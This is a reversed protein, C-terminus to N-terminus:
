SWALMQHIARRARDAIPEEVHVQPARNRLCFLVKEVTTLKMNPCVAFPSVRHFIKEPNELRLRHLLGEETAVIFEMAPSEKAFRCMQGTSLIQDAVMRVPKPCEPHALAVADPHAAKLEQIDRPQIRAHTPCYGPWLILDRGLTEAIVTGLHQDPVFIVDQGEYHRLINVANGSTCCCDSEAKVEATSNVYCVVKAHPHEAKFARLQGATIMDAMPCGAHLDPILVTKDPNLIAATEAMFYVGCFVITDATIETAKRSLELSDGTFDALDQVDPLQYNHALIIAHQEAKLRNIEDIIKM